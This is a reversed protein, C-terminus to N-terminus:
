LWGIEKIVVDGSLIRYCATRIDRASVANSWMEKSPCPEIL